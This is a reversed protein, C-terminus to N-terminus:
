RVSGNLQSGLRGLALQTVGERCEGVIGAVGLISEEFGRLTTALERVTDEGNPQAGGIGSRRQALQQAQQVTSGEIVRMHQEIEALNSAYSDMTKQLEAAMPLFYNGILDTDYNEDGENTNQQQQSRQQSGYMSSIGNNSLNPYQYPQPLALNTVIRQLRQGDKLDKEANKRQADVAYADASLAQEVDDAKDKVFNIDPILSNLNEEHKPLFAEIQKAFQEQQQIMKDLAELEQKVSDACDEFRTTGKLNDITVQSAAQAAPAAGGQGMSLRGFSTSQNMSSAQTAGLLSPAQQQTPRATNGFLSSGTNNAAPQAGFLSGGANNTAPQAGFLSSGAQQSQTTAPKAFMNTANPTNNPNGFLSSTNNKPAGFTSTNGANGFLSPAAAPQNPQTNANSTTNGGFLSTTNNNANNQQASPTTDTVQNQKARSADLMSQFSSKPAPSAAAVAPVETQSAPASVALVSRNFGAEVDAPIPLFKAEEDYAPATKWGEEEVDDSRKNKKKSSGDGGRGGRAGGRFNLNSPM